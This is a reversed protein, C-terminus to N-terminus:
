QLDIRHAYSKGDSITIQRFGLMNALDFFTYTDEVALNRFLETSRAMATLQALVARARYLTDFSGGELGVIILKEAEDGKAFIAFRPPYSQHSQGLTQAVVFGIRMNRSAQPLVKARAHYVETSSIEPYYYGEHREDQEQALAPPSVAALCALTALALVLRRLPMRI